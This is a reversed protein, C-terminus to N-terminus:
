PIKKNFIALENCGSGTMCEEGQVPAIFTLNEPMQIQYQSLIAKFSNVSISFFDNILFVIATKTSIVLEDYGSRKICDEEQVRATFTLNEPIQIQSQSFILKFSNM